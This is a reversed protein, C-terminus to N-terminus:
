APLASTRATAHTPLRATLRGHDLGMAVDLAETLAPDHTVALFTSGMGHAAELLLDIVLRGAAADLSATPEDAVILPPEHLLARAIAVRQQEGRSLDTVRRNRIPVKFSELLEACRQRARESPRLRDFYCTVLVNAEISLGPVLQFDQFVFGVHQRRWSDRRPEPMRSLEHEGWRVSGQQVTEIGTLLYLLTTKGSGSPGTLAVSSGPAIELQEIDLVPPQGPFRHVLNSARLPLAGTALERFGSEGNEEDSM